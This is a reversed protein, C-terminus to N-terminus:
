AVRERVNKAPSDQSIRCDDVSGDCHGLNSGTRIQSVGRRKDYREAPAIRDVQKFSQVPACGEQGPLHGLAHVQLESRTYIEHQIIRKITNVLDVGDQSRRFNGPVQSYLSSILREGVLILFGSRDLAHRM